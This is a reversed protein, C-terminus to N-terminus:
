GKLNHEKAVKNAQTATLMNAILALPINCVLQAEGSTQIEQMAHDLSCHGGYIYSFKDPNKLQVETSVVYSKLFEYDTRASRGGGILSTALKISRNSTRFKSPHYFLVVIKDIILNM